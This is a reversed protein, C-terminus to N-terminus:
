PHKLVPTAAPLAADDQSDDDAEVAPVAYAGTFWRGMDIDACRVSCFPRLRGPAAPKHCIPCKPAAKATEPM